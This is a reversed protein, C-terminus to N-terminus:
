PQRAQKGKWLEYGKAKAGKPPKSPTYLKIRAFNFVKKVEPDAQRHAQLAQNRRGFQEGCEALANKTRGRVSLRQDV